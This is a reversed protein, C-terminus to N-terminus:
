DSFPNDADYNFFHKEILRHTDAIDRGYKNIVAVDHEYDLTMCGGLVASGALLGLVLAAKKRM